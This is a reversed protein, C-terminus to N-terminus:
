GWQEKQSRYTGWKDYIRERRPSFRMQEHQPIWEPNELLRKNDVGCAEAWAEDYLTKYSAAKRHVGKDIAVLMKAHFVLATELSGTAPLDLPETDSVPLRINRFFRVELVGSRDPADLVEIKSQTGYLFDTIWHVGRGSKERNLEDWLDPRVYDLPLGGTVLGDGDFRAKASVFERINTPVTYQGRFGEQGALLGAAPVLAIDTAQVTLYYWRRRNFRKLTRIVAEGAGVEDPDGTRTTVGAVESKVAALTNITMPVSTSGLVWTAM